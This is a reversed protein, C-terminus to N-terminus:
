KKLAVAGAAALSVVALAAAIGALDNAGTDPNNATVDNDTENGEADASGTALRTDSIVYTTSTRVKGTWAYDDANWKLGSAVLKGDAIKYVFEDEEAALSANFATPFGATKVGIFRLDADPYNRLVTTDARYNGKVFIKDDAYARGNLTLDGISIIVDGYPTQADPKVIKNYGELLEASGSGDLTVENLTYGIKEEINKITLINNRKVDGTDKKAKISLTEIVLNEGKPAALEMNENLTIRVVQEDDNIKIE